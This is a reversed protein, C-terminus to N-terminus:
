LGKPLSERPGSISDIRSISIARACTENQFKGQCYSNLFEDLPMQKEGVSIMRQSPIHPLRFGSQKAAAIAKADTTKVITGHVNVIPVGDKDMAPAALVSMPVSACFLALLKKV